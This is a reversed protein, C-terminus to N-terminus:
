SGQAQRLQTIFNSIAEQESEPALELAKEAAALAEDIRGLQQYLLALNRYSIFDDPMAELVRLTQIVADELRGVQSYAHALASRVQVQDPKAALVGEYAEIAKQWDTTRLYLDGLAQQVQVNNPALQRATELQAVAEELRGQDRYVMAVNWLSNVDEPKFELAKDYAMEANPLDNAIRYLEGLLQHIPAFDPRVEAATQAYVLARDLQEIDRYLLALNKLADFDKPHQELVKLTAAIADDHRGLQAYIVGLFSWAQTVGPDLALGKEYMEAAPELQKSNYYVDGMSFYPKAFEEDLALAQQFKELAKDFQGIGMYVLGWEHYLHATNPSLSTAQEYYQLSQNIRAMKEDPSTTLGAWSHYLRALNASHDTNLPNLARARELEKRTEELVALKQAPELKPDKALELYARGLALRYFDEKPAVEIAHRYAEAAVQWLKNQEYGQGQKFIMDARIVNVNTLWIIIVAIPLILFHLLSATGRWNRLPKRASDRWYLVFGISLLMLFAVVYFWVLVAAALDAAQIVTMEGQRLIPQRLLNVHRNAYLWVIVPPLPFYVLFAKIWTDESQERFLSAKAMEAIALAGSLWWVLVFMSIVGYTSVRQGKILKSTLSHWIIDGVATERAQNTVFDYALVVLLFSILLGYVIASGLWAPMKAEVPKQPPTAPRARRRRRKRRSRPVETDGPGEPTEPPKSKGTLVNGIVVLLGAYTWFYIRTAAIAIGFHIEVFHAIIASILAILLLQYWRDAPPNVEGRLFTTAVLLYVGVGVVIGVPLGVGIFEPRSLGSVVSGALAGVVWLAAFFNRERRNRILGLWKFGYYFVSAFLLMYIAFGVLGTIVLADFTENHSRDPSANRAEIQGLEPPYFRNYAVWMAEPGYGVLPRISNLSDNDRLGEPYKLPEHPLVLDIAGQWILVRVRGTGRETEFVKGLRGVYQNTKLSELPGSPVNLLVLFAVGALGLGVTGWVLWRWRRVFGLVLLFFLGGALFGLQPGRSGSWYIAITQLAAVFVYIAGRVVDATSGEEELLLAAFADFARAWTLPAIMILYAAVFIANGMNSAVRSTVDGVWPLPDLGYHQLIGYFSIPVSVLIAMMVLRDIQARTRLTQLMIAFIVIYSLTTYTGQLRQYSGWLSVGPVISTITSLIYVGVLLLTPLALPTDKILAGVDLRESGGSESPRREGQEILRILWFAIVLVAISRLFTLKDPEYVRSSYINFFTPVTIIALLWAVELVRDCFVGIKTRMEFM